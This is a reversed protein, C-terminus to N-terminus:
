VELEPYNWRMSNKGDTTYVYLHSMVDETYTVLLQGNGMVINSIVHNCEPIIEQWAKPDPHRPDVSVLRYNPANHNTILLLRGDQVGVM